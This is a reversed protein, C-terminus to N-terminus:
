NYQNLTIIDSDKINNNELSKYKNIKVGRLLFYNESERYEPYIDYLSKEINIFMDTNKCIFSHHIKQDVSIFIISMLKEGQKIVFPFASKLSQIEKEKNRLEKVLELIEKEVNNKKGDFLSLNKNFNEITTKQENIIKEYELNKNKLNKLSQELKKNNNILEKNMDNMKKINNELDIIKNRLTQNMYKMEHIINENGLKKNSLYLISNEQINSNILITNDELEINNFILKIQNIKNNIAEKISSIKDSIKLKIPIKEDILVKIYVLIEKSDIILNLTTNNGINYYALNRNNELTINNLMLKQNILQIGERRFITFKITEITDSSKAMISFLNGFQTKILVKIYISSNYKLELVTGCNLEINEDNTLEKDLLYLNQFEIPINIEKLIKKKIDLITENQNYRLKFKENEFKIFIYNENNLKLHIELTSQNSINYDKITKNDDNLVRGLNTLRIEEFPIGERDQIMIKIDKITSWEELDLVITKRHFTKVFVQM